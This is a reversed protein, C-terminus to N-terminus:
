EIRQFFDHKPEDGGTKAKQRQREDGPEDEDRIQERLIQHLFGDQREDRPQQEAHQQDPTQSKAPPSFGCHAPGQPAEPDQRNGIEAHFEHELIEESPMPALRGREYGLISCGDRPSKNAASAPNSTRAANKAPLSVASM